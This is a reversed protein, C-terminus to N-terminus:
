RPMFMPATPRFARPAYGFDNRAPTADFVLDSRMRAVATANFGGVDSLKRACLLVIGFVPTPLEILRPSPELVSLVRAVMERYPVREGGPLAYSKGQTAPVDVVNFAAEALDHVHVPERLGTANRPLVFRHWRMALQAVRTLTEDRGAGYILTPRLVTVQANRAAASDFLLGEAARLRAAVDREGKDASGLKVDISTSGFAVVRPCDITTRAYWQAFLDLPGCSFIVDVSAPMWGGISPLAGALWHLGPQDRHAERSVATVRWGEDQLRDTLPWGIQGTAGFVLAHRM